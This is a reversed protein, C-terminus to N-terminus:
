FWSRLNGLLSTANGGQHHDPFIGKDRLFQLVCTWGALQKFHYSTLLRLIGFCSLRIHTYRIRWVLKIKWPELWINILGFIWIENILIFCFILAWSPLVGFADCDVRRILMQHAAQVCRRVASKNINLIVHLLSLNVGKPKSTMARQSGHSIQAGHVIHM